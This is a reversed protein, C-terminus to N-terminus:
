LAGAGRYSQRAPILRPIQYPPTEKRDIRGGRAQFQEVTEGPKDAPAIVKPVSPALALAPKAAAIAARRAAGYVKQRAKRRAAAEGKPLFHVKPERALTYACLAGYATAGATRDVTFIGLRAQRALAKSVDDVDFGIAEAVAPSFSGPNARVYDRCAASIGTRTGNKHTM